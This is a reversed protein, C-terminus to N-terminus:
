AVVDELASLSVIEDRNILVRNRNVRIGYRRTDLLYLERTTKTDRLDHVDAAELVIYRHDEEILVGAYIYSSSVDIVVEQGILKQAADHHNPSPQNM